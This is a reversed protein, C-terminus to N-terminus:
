TATIRTKPRDGSARTQFNLPWLRTQAHKVKMESGWVSMFIMLAEVLRQSAGNLWRGAHSCPFLLHTTTQWNLRGHLIWEVRKRWDGAAMGDASVGSGVAFSYFTQLLGDRFTAVIRFPRISITTKQRCPFQLFMFNFRGICILAPCLTRTITNGASMWFMELVAFSAVRASHVVTVV